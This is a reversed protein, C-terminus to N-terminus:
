FMKLGTLDRVAQLFSDFDDPFDNSGICKLVVQDTIIKVEWQTGDLIYQFYKDKWNSAFSKISEFFTKWQEDTPRIRTCQEAFGGQLRDM